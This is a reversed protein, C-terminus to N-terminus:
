ATFATSTTPESPLWPDTLEVAVVISQLWHDVVVSGTSMTPASPKVLEPRSIM